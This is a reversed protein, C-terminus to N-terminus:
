CFTPQYGRITRESKPRRRQTLAALSGTSTYAQEPYAQQSIADDM